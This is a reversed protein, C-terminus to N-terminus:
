DQVRSKRFFLRYYYYIKLSFCISFKSIQFLIFFLKQLFKPNKENRINKAKIFRTDYKIETLIGIKKEFVIGIKEKMMMVKANEIMEIETEIGKVTNMETEIM